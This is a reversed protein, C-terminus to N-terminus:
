PASRRRGLRVREAALLREIAARNTEDPGKIADLDARAEASLTMNIQADGTERAIERAIRVRDAATTGIPHKRPRGGPM